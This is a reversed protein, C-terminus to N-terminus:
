SSLQLPLMRSPVKYVAIYRICLKPDPARLLLSVVLSHQWPFWQTQHLQKGILNNLAEQLYLLPPPPPPVSHPNHQRISPSPTCRTTIITLHGYGKSWAPSHTPSLSSPLMARSLSHLVSLPPLFSSLPLPPPYLLVEDVLGAGVRNGDLHSLEDLSTVDWIFYVMQVLDLLEVDWCLEWM